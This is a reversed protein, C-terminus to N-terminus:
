CGGTDTIVTTPVSEGGEGILRYEAHFRLGYNNPDEKLDNRSWVAFVNDGVQIYETVDLPGATEQWDDDGVEDRTVEQGNVYFIYDDNATLWVYIKEQREDEDILRRPLGFRRRFYVESAYGSWIWEAEANPWGMLEANAASVGDEFYGGQATNWAADDFGPQTWELSGGQPAASVLWASNRAQQQEYTLPQEDQAVSYHLVFPGVLLFATLIIIGRLSKTLSM